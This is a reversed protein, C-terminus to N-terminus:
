AFDSDLATPGEILRPSTFREDRSVEVMMRAARNTASWIMARTPTVDGVQVGGPMLPAASERLVRSMMAPAAFLGSASKVFTRRTIMADAM